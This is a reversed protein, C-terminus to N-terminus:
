QVVWTLEIASGTILSEFSLCVLPTSVKPVMVHKVTFAASIIDGKQKLNISRLHRMLPLRNMKSRFMSCTVM